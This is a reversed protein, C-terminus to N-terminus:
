HATADFTQPANLYPAIVSAYQTVAADVSHKLALTARDIEAMAAPGPIFVIRNAASDTPVSENWGQEGNAPVAAPQAAVPTSLELAIRAEQITAEQAKQEALAQAAERAQQEALLQAALQAAEEAQRQALERAAQEAQQQAYARAAEEAQRQALQRAAEEAQRQALQRAAQEAQRQAERRATEHLQGILVSLQHIFNELHWASEYAIFQNMIEALEPAIGVPTGTGNFEQATLHGAPPSFGPPLAALKVSRLWVAVDRYRTAAQVESMGATSGIHGAIEEQIRRPQQQLLAIYSSM